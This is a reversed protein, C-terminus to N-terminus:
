HRVDIANLSIREDVYKEFQHSSFLKLHLKECPAFLAFKYIYLNEYEFKYKYIFYHWNFSLLLFIIKDWPHYNQNLNGKKFFFKLLRKPTLRSAKSERDGYWHVKDKTNKHIQIYRQSPSFYQNLQFFFCNTKEDYCIIHREM